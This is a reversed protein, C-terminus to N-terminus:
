RPGGFDPLSGPGVIYEYFLELQMGAQMGKLHKLQCVFDRM